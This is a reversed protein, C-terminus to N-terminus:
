SLVESAGLKILSKGAGGRLCTWIQLVGPTKHWQPVQLGQRYRPQLSEDLTFESRIVGNGTLISVGNRRPVPLIDILWRDEDDLPSIDAFGFNGADGSSHRDLYGWLDDLSVIGHPPNIPYSTPGPDFVPQPRSAELGLRSAIGPYKSRFESCEAAFSTPALTRMGCRVNLVEIETRMREAWRAPTASFAGSLRPDDAFDEYAFIISGDLDTSQVRAVKKGSSLVAVDGTILKSMPSNHKHDGLLVNRHIVEFVHTPEVADTATDPQNDILAADETNTISDTSKRSRTATASM